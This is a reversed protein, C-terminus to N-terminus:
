TDLYKLVPCEAVKAIAHSNNIVCVYIDSNINTFESFYLHLELLAQTRAVSGGPLINYRMHSRMYHIKELIIIAELQEDLTWYIYKQRVNTNCDLRDRIPQCELIHIQTEKQHCLFICNLNGRNMKSFNMKASYCSSRLLFLMRIQKVSFKINIIYPQIGFTKYELAKM